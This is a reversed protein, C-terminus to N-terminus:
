RQGSWMPGIGRWDSDWGAMRRKDLVLRALRYACLLALGSGLIALTAGLGESAEQQGRGAPPEAPRGSADTWITVTSGAAAHPLVPIRGTHLVRGPGAWRAEAYPQMLGGFITGFAPSADTLLVASVQRPHGAAANRAVAAAWGAAFVAFLPGIVLFTTLTLSTIAAEARDTARRLPNHDPWLGRLWRAPRSLRPVLFLKKM